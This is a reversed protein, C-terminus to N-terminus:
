SHIALYRGVYKEQTNMDFVSNTGMGSHIAGHLMLKRLDSDPNSRVDVM